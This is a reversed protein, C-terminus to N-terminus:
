RDLDHSKVYALPNNTFEIVDRATELYFTKKKGTASTYKVPYGSKWFLLSAIRYGISKFFNSLLPWAILTVLVLLIVEYVKM